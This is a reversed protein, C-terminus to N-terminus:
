DLAVGIVTLLMDITTVIIVYSHMEAGRGKGM